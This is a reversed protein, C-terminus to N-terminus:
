SLKQRKMNADQMNKRENELQRDKEQSEKMQEALRGKVSSLEQTLVQFKQVKLKLSSERESEQILKQSQKKEL